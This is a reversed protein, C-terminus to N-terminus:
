TSFQTFHEVLSRLDELWPNPERLTFLELEALLMKTETSRVSDYAYRDISRFFLLPCRASMQCTVM